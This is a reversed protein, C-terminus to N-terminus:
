SPVGERLRTLVMAMAVKLHPLREEQWLQQLRAATAARQEPLVCLPIALACGHRYIAWRESRPSRMEDLLDAITGPDGIRGESRQVIDAYKLAILETYHEVDRREKLFLDDIKDVAQKLTQRDEALVFQRLSQVTAPAVFRNTFYDWPWSLHGIMNPYRGGVAKLVDGATRRVDGNPDWFLPRAIELAVETYHADIEWLTLVVQLRLENNPDQLLPELWGIATPAKTRDATVLARIALVRVFNNGHNDILDQMVPVIDHVRRPDIEVLARAAKPLVYGGTPDAERLLPLLAAVAAGSQGPDLAALTQAATIRAVRDESTLLDHLLTRAPSEHGSRM